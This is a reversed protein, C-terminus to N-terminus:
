SASKLMEFNNNIRSTLSAGIKSLTEDFFQNIKQRFDKAKSFYQNNRAHENMVKWLREIPNLNPSYPPLYHLKIGLNEAEEVVEKSRHYGAGDLVMHIVSMSAYASRVNRFFTIIAEGNVTKFQDFVAGSLNNLEIAGVINLRTRSGTTNIIKDVGKRIWGSTIKTAQTPHVADMFLLAEDEPLSAKLTEYVWRRELHYTTAM